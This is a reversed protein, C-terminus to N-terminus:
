EAVPPIVAFVFNDFAHEQKDVNRTLKFCFGGITTIQSSFTEQYKQVGDVFYTKVFGDETVDIEVRLTLWTGPVATVVGNGSGNNDPNIWSSSTGYHCWMSLDGLNVDDRDNTKTFGVEMIVASGTNLYETNFGFQYKYEAIIKSGVAIEGLDANVMLTSPADFGVGTGVVLKGDEALVYNGSTGEDPRKNVNIFKHGPSNILNGVNSIDKM